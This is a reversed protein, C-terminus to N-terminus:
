LDHKKTLFLSINLFIFIHRCNKESLQPWDDINHKDFTFTLNTSTIPSLENKLM